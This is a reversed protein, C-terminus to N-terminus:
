GIFINQKIQKKLTLGEDFRMTVILITDHTFKTNAEYQLPIDVPVTNSWENMCWCCSVRKMKEATEDRQSMMMMPM